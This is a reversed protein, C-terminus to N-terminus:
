CSCNSKAWCIPSSGAPTSVRHTRTHAAKEAPVLLIFICRGFSSVPPKATALFDIAAVTEIWHAVAIPFYFTNGAIESRAPPM